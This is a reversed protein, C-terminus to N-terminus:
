ATEKKLKTRFEKECELVEQNKETLAQEITKVKYVLNKFDDPELSFAHDTGKLM